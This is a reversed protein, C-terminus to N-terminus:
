RNIKQLFRRSRSDFVGMELMACAKKLKSSSTQGRALMICRVNPGSTSARGCCSLREVASHHHRRGRGRLAALRKRWTWRSNMAIIVYIDFDREREREKEPTPEVIPPPTRKTKHTHTRQPICGRMSLSTLWSVIMWSIYTTAEPLSRIEPPCGM